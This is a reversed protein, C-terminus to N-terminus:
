GGKTGLLVDSDNPTEAHLRRIGGIGAKELMGRIETESYAQGHPTGLLMNLSFLAPFVPRDRTDDLIFEHILILGGPVLSAAAKAVLRECDAPGEGHLIQSLWVVDNDGPIEDALYDGGAFGIRDSLGFREITALAFPRTTPLDFVTAQLGPNHNCFHIAYTGPGGGLDLLRRRGSLDALPVLLPATNMALNFMGMLFNRRTEEDKFSARGRVPGGTVVAEDLRSWSEVLNQHHLIMYGIYDPSDKSLYSLSDPTNGYADATKELLGMAALADLLMGTGRPDSGLKAAIEEATRRDNAVATFVDLKVGAHLTCTQWYFGSTGLLEGPHWKRREM